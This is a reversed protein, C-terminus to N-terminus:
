AGNKEGNDTQQFCYEEISVSGGHAVVQDKFSEYIMSMLGSMRQSHKMCRYVSGSFGYVDLYDGDEVVKLIGSNMRWSDGDLYGGYWGAILRRYKENPSKEVNLIAWCDPVYM